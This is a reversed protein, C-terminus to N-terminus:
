VAKALSQQAASKVQQFASLCNDISVQQQQEYLAFYDSVQAGLQSEFLSQNSTAGATANNATDGLNSQFIGAASVPLFDEYIVPDFRVLNLGILEEITKDQNAAVDVIADQRVSYNFFALQQERLECYSDPFASFVSELVASYEAANSGDPNPTIQERVKNLLQNYLAQGKETLAIGRQEIEGFRATHSGVEFDGQQNAFKVPEQLAKFSTQRLLIPCNRRPPGEIVAKPTIGKEPMLTQVRDINVTTPTLHNIHPGKFSVVDAILRHSDHLQQYLETDVLAEDQWRFIGVALEIFTASQDATIGGNQEAEDMLQLLQPSFIHRSSLVAEARQRLDQDEILDTRLLSTFVRFANVALASSQVPRFATSHVPIGAVALDYYGVPQMGLLAFLRRVNFLEEAKGLRIAGHREEAMRELSNSHRLSQELTPNNLLEQENVQEVLDVLSEYQPVESRYMASMAAVFQTRLSDSSVVQPNKM